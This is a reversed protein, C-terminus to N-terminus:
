FPTCFSLKLSKFSLLPLIFNIDFGYRNDCSRKKKPQLIIM